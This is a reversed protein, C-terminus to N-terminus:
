LDFGIVAKSLSRQTEFSEGFRKATRSLPNCGTRPVLSYAILKKRSEEQIALAQALQSQSSASGQLAGMQSNKFGTAMSLNAQMNALEQLQNTQSPKFKPKLKVRVRPKKAYCSIFRTKKAGFFKLQEQLRKKKYWDM